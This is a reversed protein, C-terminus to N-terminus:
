GKVKKFPILPTKIRTYNDLFSTYEALIGSINSTTNVRGLQANVIAHIRGGPKYLNSDLIYNIAKYGMSHNIFQYNSNNAQQLVQAVENTLQGSVLSEIAKAKLWALKIHLQPVDDTMFFFITEYPHVSDFDCLVFNDSNMQWNWVNNHILLNPKEFGWVICTRPKDLIKRIDASGALLRYYSQTDRISSVNKPQVASLTKDLQEATNWRAYEDKSLGRVTYNLQQFTPEYKKLAAILQTEMATRVPSNLMGTNNMVQIHVNKVRSRIFSDLVTHSDTGGSYTLIINDYKQGLITAHQDLYYYIDNDPEISWDVTKMFKYNLEFKIEQSSRASHEIAEVISYFSNDGVTYKLNTSLNRTSIM